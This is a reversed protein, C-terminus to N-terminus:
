PYQNSQGKNRVATARALYLPAGDGYARSEKGPAYSANYSERMKGPVQQALTTADAASNASQATLWTRAFDFAPQGYTHARENAHFQEHRQTLDSAWFQTRPPRGNDSTMDPTLDSVVTPYNTKTIAATNENPIDTRGLSHVSWTIDNNVTATVNFTHATADQTVNIGNIRTRTSTVGFEDAGPTGSNAVTPTYTLAAGVADSETVTIGGKDDVEERDAGGPGVTDADTQTASGAPTTRASASPAMPISAVLQHTATTTQPPSSWDPGRGPRILASFPLQADSDLQAQQTQSPLQFSGLSHQQQPLPQQWQQANAEQQQPAPQATSEKRRILPREGM